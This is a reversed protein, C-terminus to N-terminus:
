KDSGWEVTKCISFIKAEGEGVIKLRMHDCRKPKIPVAFSKLNVGTMNFLHEYSGSSDYEAYFSVKAGVALKMRVDLRSVYKKDPSDTGIYGTVAEWQVANPDVVGGGKVSMIDRGAYDIYYLDGKCNCFVLAETEDERHWMGKKTDYVFLNYEGDEGKMSVYYKNGLYGARADSYSKDGLAGSIEAPLSGDYAMIGSRGKYYVIENVIAISRDCGKQVGRCATTQVQYNSPYNGYIKHMYGEKFFIPYGLHTVAGTFYGDTGVTVAYSDSAIGQYSQWNKFDGLKCCYIENVYGGYSDVMGRAEADYKKGQYAAGYHCGWLRNQSEIVFDLNPVWRSVGIPTEQTITGEILGTVIISNDNEGKGMIITSANLAQISPDTVGSITVADGVNFKSGIGDAVISVYTTAVASWMDTSSSYIKLMHPTESTDLWYAGNVEEPPTAGIYPSIASGDALSPYFIAGTSMYHAEIDGSDSPDLTNIYKKDPFIIVYSGMSVLLKPKVKGEETDTTLGLDKANIEDGNIVFRKGDIYCLSDKAILGTPSEVDAIYFGRKNRPSLVPYDDGTMNKMDYFEGEGIRLNHNYGGFADTWERSTQMENLLPYKM